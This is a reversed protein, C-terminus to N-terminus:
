DLLRVQQGLGLRTAADLVTAGAAVDWIALGHSEFLTPHGPDPAAPAKGALVAGFEVASSWDFRGAQAARVLDGSELRATEMQDVVVPRCRAVLDAPLEANTAVNSGAGIVLAGSAVWASELVPERSTTVTLVLDAGEVAERASSAARAPIGLETELTTAFATRRAEDRAFVALDEIELVRSLALAQTRAQWGAGIMGVRTAAPKLCRAAVASAAGTRYAGMLDAEILARPVGDLGFLGVLFRARGRAVTYSKFGCLGASPVSGSMTNLIGEPHRVRRRPQNEASGEGLERTASEVADIVTEM